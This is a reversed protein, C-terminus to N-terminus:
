EERVARVCYPTVSGAPDADEYIKPMMKLINEKTTSEKIDKDFVSNVVFLMTDKSVNIRGNYEGM